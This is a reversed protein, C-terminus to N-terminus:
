QFVSSFTYNRRGFMIFEKHLIGYGTLIPLFDADWACSVLAIVVFVLRLRSWFGHTFDM